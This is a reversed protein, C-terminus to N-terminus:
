GGKHRVSVELFFEGFPSQFPIVITTITKNQDSIYNTGVVVKPLGFSYHYGKEDLGSKAMGSIINILEKVGDVVDASLKEFQEGVLKGVAAMAVPEPLTLVVVGAVDGALGIVASVGYITQRPDKLYPKDTKLTTGCMQEFTGSVAAAFARIIDLNAKNGM